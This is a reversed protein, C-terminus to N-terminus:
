KSGQILDEISGPRELRKYEATSHIPRKREEAQEKEFYIADEEEKTLGKHLKDDTYSFTRQNMITSNLRNFYDKYNAKVGPYIQAEVEPSMPEKNYVMDTYFVFAQRNDEYAERGGILPATRITERETKDETQDQSQTDTGGRFIKDDHIGIEDPNLNGYKPPPKPLNKITSEELKYGGIPTEKDTQFQARPHEAIRRGTLSEMAAQTPQGDYPHLYTHPHALEPESKETANTHEKWFAQYDRWGAQPDIGKGSLYKQVAAQESPTAVKTHAENYADKSKMGGPLLNEEMHQTEAMEHGHVFEFMDMTHGGINAFQPIRRDIATGYVKGDDDMLAAAGLPVEHDHDIHAKSYEPYSGPTVNIRPREGPLYPMAGKRNIPGEMDGAQIAEERQSRYKEAPRLYNNLMYIAQQEKPLRNMTDFQSLGTNKDIRNKLNNVAFSVQTRPDMWDTGRQKAFSAMPGWEPGGESLLGHAFNAEGKWHPQDSERLYPNWNSEKGINYKFASIMGESAGESKLSSGVIDSLSQQSQAVEFHSQYTQGDEGIEPM